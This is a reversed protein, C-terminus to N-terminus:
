VAVDQDIGELWCAASWIDGTHTVTGMPDVISVQRDRVSIRMQDHRARGRLRDLARRFGSEEFPDNEVRALLTHTPGVHIVEFLGIVGWVSGQWSSFEPGRRKEDTRAIWTLDDYKHGAYLRRFIPGVQGVATRPADRNPLIYNEIGVSTMRGSLDALLAGHHQEILRSAARLERLEGRVRDYTPEVGFREFHECVWARVRYLGRILEDFENLDEQFNHADFSFTFGADWTAAPTFTGDPNADIQLSIEEPGFKRYWNHYEGGEDALPHDARCGPFRCTDTDTDTVPHVTTM